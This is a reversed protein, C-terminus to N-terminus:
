PTRMQFGGLICQWSTTIEVTVPPDIGDFITFSNTM